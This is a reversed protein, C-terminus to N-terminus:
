KSKIKPLFNEVLNEGNITIRTTNPKDGTDLWGSFLRIEKFLNDVDKPHKLGIEDYCSIIHNAEINYIGAYKTLYYTFLTVVEQHTKPSKEKFFDKLSPGNQDGKLNLSSPISRVQEKVVEGRDVAKSKVAPYEKKQKTVSISTSNFSKDYRDLIRLVFEESGELEIIGEKLNIKAKTNDGLEKSIL